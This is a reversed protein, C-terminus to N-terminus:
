QTIYNEPFRFSSERGTRELFPVYYFGSENEIRDKVPFPFDVAKILGGKENKLNIVGHRGMDVKTMLYIGSEQKEYTIGLIIHSNPSIDVGAFFVKGRNEPRIIDMNLECEQSVGDLYDVLLSLNNVIKPEGIKEGSETYRHKFKWRHESSNFLHINLVAEDGWPLEIKYQKEEKNMKKDSSKKSLSIKFLM